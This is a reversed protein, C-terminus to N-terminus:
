IQLNAIARLAFSMGSELSVLHGKRLMLTSLGGERIEFSAPLKRYNSIVLDFEKSISIRRVIGAKHLARDGGGQMSIISVIGMIGELQPQPSNSEINELAARVGDLLKEAESIEFSFNWLGNFLYHFGLKDRGRRKLHYFYFGPPVRIVSIM